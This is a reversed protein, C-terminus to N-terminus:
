NKQVWAIPWDQYPESKWEFNCSSLFNLKMQYPMDRVIERDINYERPLLITMVMVMMM